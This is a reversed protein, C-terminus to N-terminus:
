NKSPALLLKAVDANLLGQESLNKVINMAFLNNYQMKLDNGFDKAIKSIKDHPNNWGTNGEFVQRVYDAIKVNKGRISMEGADILADLTEMVKADILATIQPNVRESVLKDIQQQISQKVGGIVGRTIESKVAEKFDSTEDCLMDSVLDELDIEINLKM